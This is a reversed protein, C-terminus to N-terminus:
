ERLGVAELAEAKTGYADFYTLKGQRVGWVVGVSNTTEAGSAKGRAIQRTVVVVADGADIFEEAEIRIDLAEGGVWQTLWRKFGERGHGRRADPLGGVSRLEFGPDAIEDAFALAADLGRGVAEYARRVLEVNEQSM